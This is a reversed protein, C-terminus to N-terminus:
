DQDPVDEGGGPRSWSREHELRETFHWRARSLVRDRRRSSQDPSLAPWTGEWRVTARWHRAGLLVTLVADSKFVARDMATVPDEAGVIQPELPLDVPCSKRGLYPVFGPQVLAKCLDVLTWRATAEDRLWLAVTWLADVRYERQSLVTAVDGRRYALEARRTAPRHWASGAKRAAREEIRLLKEEPGQATHYDILLHGPADTRSAFALSSDLRTLADPDDRRLRLAAGVLGLV